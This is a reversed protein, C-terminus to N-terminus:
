RAMFFARAGDSVWAGKRSLTAAELTIVLTRRISAILGVILFPEVIMLKHSRISIRMTHLIEVLMLVILLENLVRLTQAAPSWRSLGDWLMKGARATTVLATMAPLVALMSYIVVEVTGLGDGFRERFTSESV